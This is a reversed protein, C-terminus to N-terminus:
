PSLIDPQSAPLSAGSILPEQGTAAALWACQLLLGSGAHVSHAQWAQRLAGPDVYEEPVGSGDWDKVFADTRLDFNADNFWVKTTRRLLEPPLLDGFVATMASTRDPYGFPPAAAGLAALFRRGLLPDSVEVGHEGAFRRRNHADIVTARRRRLTQLHRPWSFPEARLQRTLADEFDRRAAPRLWIRDAALSSVEDPSMVGGVVARVTDRLLGGSARHRRQLVVKVLRSRHLGFVEDGGEGSLVTGGRAHELTPGWGHVLPPWLIGRALLSPAATPGIAEMEAVPVRVWDDLRLHRIVMEQWESEDTAPQQFRQTIPVPLPLGHRRAADTAAALVGSSDRGGSFSVLCPPRALAPLVSGELAALPDEQRPMEVSVSPKREGSEYGLPVGCAVEFRTLRRYGDDSL